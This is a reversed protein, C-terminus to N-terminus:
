KLVSGQISTLPLCGYDRSDESLNTNDGLVFMTKSKPYITEIRKIVIEGDHDIVVVDNEKVSCLRTALVFDGDRYTPEMSRGKIEVIFFVQHLIIAILLFVFLLTGIGKKM